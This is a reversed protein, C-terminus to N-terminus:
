SSVAAPQGDVASEATREGTAAAETSQRGTAAAETARRRTQDEGPDQTALLRDWFTFYLGFHRDSHRHHLGHHTPGILWRSLGPPAWGVPLPNVGLHTVVAWVTMTTLVALLTLPHLPVLAVVGVLFLAQLVAEPPDFAFSTWPTPQGSRHHGRHMWSYLAPHHCLRHTAYFFLDQLILVLLYSVGLYWLGYQEPRSYLRTLGLDQLEVVGAMAVAFVASSTISLQIDARIAQASPRRRRMGNPEAARTSGSRVVLWWDTLGAVLVYRALIIVFFTLGWFGFSHSHM